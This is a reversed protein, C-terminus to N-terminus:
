SSGGPSYRDHLHDAVLNSGINFAVLGAVIWPVHRAAQSGGLARRAHHVTAGSGLGLLVIGMVLATDM